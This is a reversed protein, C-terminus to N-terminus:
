PAASIIAKGVSRAYMDEVQLLQIHHGAYANIASQLHVAREFASCYSNWCTAVPKVPQLIKHKLKNILLDRNAFHQFSEFLEHQKPTRIYNIV